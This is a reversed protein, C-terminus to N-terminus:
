HVVLTVCQLLYREKQTSKKDGLTFERTENDEGPLKTPQFKMNVRSSHM